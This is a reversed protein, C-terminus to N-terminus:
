DPLPFGTNGLGRTWNIAPNAVETRTQLSLSAMFFRTELREAGNEELRDLKALKYSFGIVDTGNTVTCVFRVFQVRVGFVGKVGQLRVNRLWKTGRCVPCGGVTDDKEILGGAAGCM